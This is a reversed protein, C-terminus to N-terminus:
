VSLTAPVLRITELQFNIGSVPSIEVDVYMADRVVRISINRYALKTVTGNVISDVIRGQDRQQGWFELADSKVTSITQLTAPRGTYRLELLERFAKAMAKVNTIISEETFVDNDLRTYSTIGKLVKCGRRDKQAVCLGGLIMDDGDAEPTWTSAQTVNQSQFYKWTVPEGPNLGARASAIALAWAWEAYVVTESFQNVGTWKQCTLVINPSNITQAINILESKTGTLGIYGTREKKNAGTSSMKACHAELLTADTGNNNASLVVVQPADIAELATLATQLATGGVSGDAGGSLAVPSTYDKPAARVAGAPFAASVILSTGNIRDICQQLKAFISTATAGSPDKVISATVLTDLKRPSFKYRDNSSAGVKAGFVTSTSNIYDVLAQVSELRLAVLDIALTEGTGNSNLTIIDILGDATANDTTSVSVTNTNSGKYFLLLKECEADTVAIVETSRKESLTSPPTITFTRTAGSTEVKVRTAATVAGYDLSTLALVNNPSGASDTLTVASQTSSNLKYAWVANAHVDGVRADNLPKFAIDAADALDGTGFYERMATGSTFQVWEGPKGGKAQGIVAITGVGETTVGEFASADLKTAGGPKVLRAGNFYVAQSM